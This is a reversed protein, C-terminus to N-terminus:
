HITVETTIKEHLNYIYEMVINYQHIYKSVQAARQELNYFDIEMAFRSLKALEIKIKSTSGVYEIDQIKDLAREFLSKWFVKNQEYHEKPYPMYIPAFALLNNEQSIESTPIHLLSIVTNISNVNLDTIASGKNQPTEIMTAQHPQM